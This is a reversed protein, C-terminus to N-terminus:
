CFRKKNKKNNNNKKLLEIKAEEEALAKSYADESIKEFGEKININDKASTEFYIIENNDAFEKAEENTVKREEILDCKNGFLVIPIKSSIERVDQLWTLVNDFSSRDNLAFCVIIGQSNKITGSSISHFREQGATDWIIIKMENGDKMKKIVEQKDIGINSIMDISFEQGLYRNIISTKGTKSDGIISLRIVKRKIKEDTM